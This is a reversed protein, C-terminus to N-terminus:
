SDMRLAYIEISQVEMDDKVVVYLRDERAFPAVARDRRPMDAEGILDGDRSFLAIRFGDPSPAEVWLRGHEDSVISRMAPAHEPRETLVPCDADPDSALHLPGRTRELERALQVSSEAQWLADTVPVPERELGISRLIAGSRLDRIDIRYADRHAVAMEGSPLLARLPGWGILPAPIPHIWGDPTGCDWGSPWPLSDPFADVSRLEGSESAEAYQITPPRVEGEPTRTGWDGVLRAVLREGGGFLASGVRGASPETRAVSGDPRFWTLRRHGLDLTVLHDGVWAIGRLSRFEGPGDGQGGITRLLEGEANVVVVQSAGGDAVYVRGTPDAVIGVVSHFEVSHGDVRSEFELTIPNSGGRGPEGNRAPASDGTRDANCGSALAIWACLLVLPFATLCTSSAAAPRCTSPRTAAFVRASRHIMFRRYEFPAM